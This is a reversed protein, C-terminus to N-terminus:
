HYFVCFFIRGRPGGRGGPSGRMAGPPGGGPAGRGGGGRMGSPAGRMGPGGRGPGGGRGMLPKTEVAAM